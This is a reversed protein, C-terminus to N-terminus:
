EPAYFKYTRTQGPEAQSSCNRGVFDGDSALPTCGAPPAPSNPPIMLDLGAPHFGLARTDSQGWLQGASGPKPTASPPVQTLQDFTPNPTVLNTLKVVLCDGVSARIVVPRPRKGSRLTVQGPVCQSGAVDCTGAKPLGTATDEPSVDRALAYIMGGPIASGLRNLMIPQDLAIIDAYITRNCSPSATQAPLLSGAVCSVCAIRMWIRVSNM